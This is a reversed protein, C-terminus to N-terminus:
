DFYLHTLYVVIPNSKLSSSSSLLPIPNGWLLTRNKHLRYNYVIHEFANESRRRQKTYWILTWWLIVFSCIGLKQVFWLVRISLICMSCTGNIEPSIYYLFVLVINYMCAFVNNVWWRFRLLYEGWAISCQIERACFFLGKVGNNWASYGKVVSCIVRLIIILLLTASFALKHIHEHM